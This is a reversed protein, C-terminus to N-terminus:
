CIHLVSVLDNEPCHCNFHSLLLHHLVDNVYVAPPLLIKILLQKIDGVLGPTADVSIKAVSLSVQSVFPFQM